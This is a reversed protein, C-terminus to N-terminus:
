VPANDTLYSISRYFEGATGKERLLRRGIVAPDDGRGLPMSAVRRGQMDELYLMGEVVTFWGEVIAGAPSAQSPSEVQVRVLRRASNEVYTSKEEPVDNRVQPQDIAPAERRSPRGAGTKYGGGYAYHSDLSRPVGTIIACIGDDDGFYVERKEGAAQVAALWAVKVAEVDEHRGAVLPPLRVVEGKEFKESILQRRKAELESAAAELKDADDKPDTSM